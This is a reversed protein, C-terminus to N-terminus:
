TQWQHEEGIIYYDKLRPDLWLAELFFRSKRQIIHYNQIYITLTRKVREKGFLLISYGFNESENEIDFSMRRLSHVHGVCLLNENESATVAADPRPLDKLLTEALIIANLYGQDILLRKMREHGLQMFDGSPPRLWLGDLHIETFYESGLIDVHNEVLDLGDIELTLLGDSLSAGVFEIIDDYAGSGLGLIEVYGADLFIREAEPREFVGHLNPVM